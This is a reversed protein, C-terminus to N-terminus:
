HRVTYNWGQMTPLCNPIKGDCGGIRVTSRVQQRTTAMMVHPGSTNGASTTETVTSLM